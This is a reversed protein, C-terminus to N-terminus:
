GRRLDLTNPFEKESKMGYIDIVLSKRGCYFQAMKEGGDIAPVEAYVTDTAVPEQRRMVNYAPFPSKLTKFFHRGQMIKSAYQTTNELTKKVKEAPVMLFYPRLSEFDPPKTKVERPVSKTPTTDEEPEDSTPEDHTDVGVADVELCVYRANLDCAELYDRHVQDRSVPISRRALNVEIDPENEDQPDVQPGAPENLPIVLRRNTPERHKYEGIEDFPSDRNIETDQINTPLKSMWDDQDTIINDLVKPDWKDPSTMVVRPLTDIEEQTPIEMRLIPLGNVIDLPIIYGEQTVICQNGNKVNLSRDYVINGFAEMQGCAHITRGTRGDAYNNWECIINGRHSLVKSLADVIKLDTMEHNNIGTVDVRINPHERIILADLAGLIGGNAGRDALAGRYRKRIGQYVQIAHKSVRYSVRYLLKPPKKSIRIGAKIWNIFAMLGLQIIELLGM